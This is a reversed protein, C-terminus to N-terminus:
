DLIVNGKTCTRVDKLGTSHSLFINVISPTPSYHIPYYGYQDTVTPDAGSDLLTQVIESDGRLTAIM